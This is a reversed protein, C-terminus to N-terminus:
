SNRLNKGWKKNAESIGQGEGHGLRLDLLLAAPELAMQRAVMGQPSRYDPDARSMLLLAVINAHGVATAQRWPFVHPFVMVMSSRFLHGFLDVKKESRLGLITGQILIWPSSM